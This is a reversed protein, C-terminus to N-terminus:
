VSQQHSPTFYQRDMLSLPTARPGGYKASSLLWFRDLDRLPQCLIGGLHKQDAYGFLACGRPLNIRYGHGQQYFGSVFRLHIGWKRNLYRELETVDMGSRANVQRLDPTVRLRIFRMLAANERRVRKAPDSESILRLNAIFRSVQEYSAVPMFDIVDSYVLHRIAAIKVEHPM